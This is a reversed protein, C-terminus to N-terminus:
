TLLQEKIRAALEQVLPVYVSNGLQAHAEEMGRCMRLSDPFGMLRRCEDLTIRRVRGGVEVLYRSNSSATLTPGLGAAAYIQRYLDHTWPRSADGQPRRRTRSRMHGVFLLGFRSRRPRGLLVYQEPRLWGHRGDPDLFDAIRGPPRNRLGDFDFRRGRSGVLFLRARVQAAGADCARLVRWSVRSGLARLSERILRLARGGDQNALGPVNEVLVAPPQKRALLRLLHYLVHSRPDDHGIRRGAVSHPQCPLGAVCVEHDPVKDPDIGALDGAPRFGHNAEFTDCAAEDIESAFVCRYGAQRFALTMGGIGSCLDAMRFERSAM